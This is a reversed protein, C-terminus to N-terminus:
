WSQCVGPVFMVVTIVIPSPVVVFKSISVIVPVVNVVLAADVVVTVQMTLEFTEITVMITIDTLPFNPCEM